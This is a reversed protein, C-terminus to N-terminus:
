GSLKGHPTHSQLDHPLFTTDSRQITAQHRSGRTHCRVNPDIESRVLGQTTDDRRGPLTSNGPLQRATGERTLSAIHLTELALKIHCFPDIDCVSVYGNSTIRRLICTIPRPASASPYWYLPASSAARTIILVSPIRPIYRPSQGLKRAYRHKGHQISNVSQATFTAGLMAVDNKVYSSTLSNRSLPLAHSIILMTCELNTNSRLQPM